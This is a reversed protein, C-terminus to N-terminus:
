RKGRFIIKDRKGVEQKPVLMECGLWPGPTPPGQLFPLSFGMQFLSEGEGVTKLAKLFKRM